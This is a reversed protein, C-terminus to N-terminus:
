LGSRLRVRRLRLMQGRLSPFETRDSLVYEGIQERATDIFVHRYAGAADVLYFGFPNTTEDGVLCRCFLQRCIGSVLPITAMACSVAENPSLHTHFDGGDILMVHCFVEWEPPELMDSANKSVRVKEPPVGLASSLALQVDGLDLFKEVLLDPLGILQQTEM